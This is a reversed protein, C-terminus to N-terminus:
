RREVYRVAYHSTDANPSILASVAALNHSSILREVELQQQVPIGYLREFLLRTEPGPQFPPLYLTDRPHKHYGDDVFRPAVGETLSLGLRAMAGVIPCQPTEYVSSLSKARLLEDMIRPGAHIFSSTWGFSSLFARPDRIIEGNESFILGCFSAECPDKVEVIKITFGLRAYMAATLEFDCAFLGDDGEVYGNLHGGAESALFLALIYNSLGNGLSTNTEGSMRRARCLSVVSSTRMVNESSLTRLLYDLHADNQLCHRYVQFELADMIEPLFHSEFATFDTGFYRLNSNRLSAVRASRDKVPVHKIFAPLAYVAAEIAKFRPGSFVKFQDSRSNILRCHKYEPYNETKVFSKIKRSAAANPHGGRLLIHAKRLEEKRHEPYTTTSLWEEFDMPAVVPLNERAWRGAFAKLRALLAPDARPVDRLLRKIAGSKVTDPDNSDLCIPAFGPVSCQLQRFM